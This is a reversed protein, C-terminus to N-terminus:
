HSWTALQERVYGALQRRETTDFAVTSPTAELLTDLADVDEVLPFDYKERLRKAFRYQHDNIHERLHGRRPVCIVPVQAELMEVLTMAGHTIVVRANQKAWHPLDDLHAITEAHTPRWDVLPPVQILVREEHAAAYADMKELLRRFLVFHGVTVLIM